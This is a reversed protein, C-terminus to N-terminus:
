VYRALQRGPPQRDCLLSHKDTPVSSNRGVPHHDKVHDFRPSSRAESRIVGDMIAKQPARRKTRLEKDHQCRSSGKTILEDEMDSDSESESEILKPLIQKNEMGAEQNKYTMTHGNESNCKTRSVVHEHQGLKEIRHTDTTIKKSSYRGVPHSNMSRDSGSTKYGTRMGGRLRAISTSRREGPLPVSPREKIHPNSNHSLSILSISPEEKERTAQKSRTAM